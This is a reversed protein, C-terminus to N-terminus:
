RLGGHAGIWQLAFGLALLGWGVYWAVRWGLHKWVIPRSWGSVLGKTGCVGVLILGVVNLALGWLNWAM